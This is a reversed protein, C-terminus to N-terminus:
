PQKHQTLVQNLFRWVAPLAFLPGLPTALVSALEVAGQTAIVLMRLTADRSSLALDVARRHLDVQSSTNEIAWITTFDGEWGVVTWGVARGSLTTEVSAYHEWSQLLSGMFDQFQQLAQNWKMRLDSGLGYNAQYLETGTVSALLEREPAELPQEESFSYSTNSVLTAFRFLRAEAEMLAQMGIAARTELTTMAASASAAEAPLEARWVPQEGQQIGLYFSGNLPTPQVWIGLLDTASSVLRTGATNGGHAPVTNSAQM